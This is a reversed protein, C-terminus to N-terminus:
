TGWKGMESEDEYFDPHLPISKHLAEVLHNKHAFLQQKEDIHISPQIVIIAANHLFLGQGCFCCTVETNDSHGAM